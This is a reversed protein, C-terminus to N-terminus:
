TDNENTIEKNLALLELLQGKTKGQLEKTSFGEKVLFAYIEPKTKPKTDLSQKHKKTKFSKTKIDKIKKKRLLKDNFNFEQISFGEEEIVDQLDLKLNSYIWKYAYVLTGNVSKSKPSGIKHPLRYRFM